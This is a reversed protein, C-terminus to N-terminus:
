CRYLTGDPGQGGIKPPQGHAANLAQQQEAPYSPDIEHKFVMALHRKILDTQREDLQKPDGLEFVGQLWYCFEVSKM